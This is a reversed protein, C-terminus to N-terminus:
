TVGILGSADRAYVVYNSGVFGERNDLEFQSIKTEGGDVDLQFIDYSVDKFFRYIKDAAAQNDARAGPPRMVREHGYFNPLMEFIVPPRKSHLTGRLGALVQLEAGEVDIKIASITDIELERLVDDGIRAQVSTTHSRITGTVEHDGAVSAMTDFRGSSYLKLIRNSDSLAIPLVAANQLHNIRLFQDVFYCCDIQPEFGIYTRNRDIGIIKMLTQGINVGVDVFTGQNTNLLRFLIARLEPEHESSYTLPSAYYGRMKFREQGINFGKGLHYGIRRAHPMIKNFM